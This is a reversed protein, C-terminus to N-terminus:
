DPHRTCIDAAHKRMGWQVMQFIGREVDVARVGLEEGVQVCFCCWAEYVSDNGGTARITTSAKLDDFLTGRRVNRLSAIKTDLVVFRRPDLFMLTKSIFSVRSFQPLGCCAVKSPCLSMPEHFLHIVANLQTASVEHRFKSVRNHRYGATAYGWYLVNSLGDKVITSDGSTLQEHIVKEVGNMSDHVREQGNKFDCTVFPFSYCCIARKLNKSQNDTLHVQDGQHFEEADFGKMGAASRQLEHTSPSTM